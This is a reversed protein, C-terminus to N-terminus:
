KNDGKNNLQWDYFSQLDYGLYIDSSDFDSLTNALIAVEYRIQEVYEIAEHINGISQETTDGLERIIEQCGRICERVRQNETAASVYAVRYEDALNRANDLEKSNARLCVFTGSLIALLMIIVWMSWFTYAKENKM